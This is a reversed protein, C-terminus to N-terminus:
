GSSKGQKMRIQVIKKEGRNAFFLTSYREANDRRQRPEAQIRPVLGGPEGGASPEHLRPARSVSQGTAWGDFAIM